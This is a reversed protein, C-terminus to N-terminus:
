HRGLSRVWWFLLGFVVLGIFRTWYVAPDDWGPPKSNLRQWAHAIRLLTKM